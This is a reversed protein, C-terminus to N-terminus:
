VSAGSVARDLLLANVLLGSERKIRLRGRNYYAPPILVVRTVNNCGNRMNNQVIM